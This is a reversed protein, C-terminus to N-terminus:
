QYSGSRLSKCQLVTQVPRSRNEMSLTFPTCFQEPDIWFPERIVMGSDNQLTFASNTWLIQFRDPPRRVKQPYQPPPHDDAVPEQSPPETIEPYQFNDEISPTEKTESGVSRTALCQTLQNVHCNVINGNGIDVHFTLLGLNQVITGPVWKDTHHYDHVMVESHISFSQALVLKNSPAKQMSQCSTM